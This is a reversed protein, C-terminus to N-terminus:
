IWVDNVSMVLLILRVDSVLSVLRGFVRFMMVVM